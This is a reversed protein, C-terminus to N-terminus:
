GEAEIPSQSGKRSNSNLLRKFFPSRANLLTRSATINQVIIVPNPSALNEDVDDYDIHPWRVGVVGCNIPRTKLRTRAQRRSIGEVIPCAASHFKTTGQDTNQLM